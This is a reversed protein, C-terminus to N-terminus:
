ITNGNLYHDAADKEKERKQCNGSCTAWIGPLVKVNGLHRTFGKKDIGKKQGFTLRKKCGQLFLFISVISDFYSKM